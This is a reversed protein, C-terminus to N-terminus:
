TGSSDMPGEKKHAPDRRALCGREGPGSEGSVPVICERLGSGSWVASLRGTRVCVGAGRSTQQKPSFASCAEVSRIAVEGSLTDRCAAISGDERRAYGEGCLDSCRKSGIATLGGGGAVHWHEVDSDVAPASSPSPTMGEEWGGKVGTAAHDGRPVDGWGIVGSL